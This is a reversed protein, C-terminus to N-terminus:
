SHQIDIKNTWAWDLFEWFSISGSNNRDLAVFTEDPNQLSPNLKQVNLWGANFEEKSIKLDDDHDLVDFGQACALNSALSICLNKFEALEITANDLLRKTKVSGKAHNFAVEILVRSKAFPELAPNTKIWEEIDKLRLHGCEDVDIKAFLDQFDKDSKGKLLAENVVPWNINHSM